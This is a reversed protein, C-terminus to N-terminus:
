QASGLTPSGGTAPMDAGTEAAAPPEPRLFRAVRHAVALAGLGCVLCAGACLALLATRAGPADGFVLHMLYSPIYATALWVGAALPAFRRPVHGVALGLLVPGVMAEGIAMLVIAASVTVESTAGMGAAAVYPTAGLAVVCLGAAPLYLMSFRAGTFHLVVLGCLLVASCLTVVIPNISVLAGVRSASLGAKVLVEWFDGSLGLALGYPVSVLLLAAAFLLGRGPDPDDAEPAPRKNRLGFDVGVVALSLVLAVVCVALAAVLVPTTNAARSVAGSGTTALLAAVNVGGYLAVFVAVRLASHRHSLESACLGYVAPKLLGGGLVVIGFGALAGGTGSSLPLLVYGVLMVLMGAAATLPARLAVALLGGLLPCLAGFTTVLSLQKFVQNAPAASDMLRLPLVSRMGYYSFRELSLVAICLGCLILARAWSTM